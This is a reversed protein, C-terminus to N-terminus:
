QGEEFSKILANYFKNYKHMWPTNNIREISAKLYGHTRNTLGFKAAIKVIQKDTPMEMKSCVPSKDILDKVKIWYKVVDFEVMQDYLAQTNAAYRIAQLFDQKKQEIRIELSDQKTQEVDRHRRVWQIFINLLKYFKSINEKYKGGKATWKDRVFTNVYSRLWDDNYNKMAQSRINECNHHSHLYLTLKEKADSMEYFSLNPKYQDSFVDELKNERAYTLMEKVKDKEKNNTNSYENNNTAPKGNRIERLPDEEIASDQPVEYLLYSYGKYKGTESDKTNEGDRVLYGLKELEEIGSRTSDKGDKSHRPLESIYFQYNNPKSLMYSLLGKAKWSLRVDELPFKHIQVFNSEKKIRTITSGSM